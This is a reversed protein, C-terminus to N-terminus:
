GKDENFLRFSYIYPLAALIAGAFMLIFVGTVLPLFFGAIITVIGTWLWLNGAMTHTKKWIENSQLTWPTRVGVFYNPQLKKLYGGLLAILLGVGVFAWREMFFTKGQSVMFIILSTFIALYIHIMFRIRYYERQHGETAPLTVDEEGATPLYRFLFYLLLNTLFLFIMVLLVDSKSGIHQPTGYLNFNTPIEAPLSNWIIGLYAMPILLLLLLLLEKPIDPKQM